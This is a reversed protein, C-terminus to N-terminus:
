TCMFHHVTEKHMMVATFQTKPV